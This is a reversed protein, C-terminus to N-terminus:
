PAYTPVVDSISPAEGQDITGGSLGLSEQVYGIISWFSVMVFIAIMGWVMLSKGGKRATEDDMNAIFKVIGWFFMVVALTMLLPIIQEAAGQLMGISNTLAEQASAFLPFTYAVIYAIKKM